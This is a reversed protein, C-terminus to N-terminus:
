RPFAPHEAAERIQELHRETHAGLFLLWQYGDFLGLIFHPHVRSRLPDSTTELYEITRDRVSSFRALIAAPDGSELSPRAVPPAQVKRKRSRIMRVLLDDKGAVQARAEAPAEPTDVLAQVTRLMGTEVLAIHEICECASWAEPAPKFRWQAPTLAATENLVKAKTERLYSLARAREADTVTM